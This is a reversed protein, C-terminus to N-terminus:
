AMQWCQKSHWYFSLLRPLWQQRAVLRYDSTNVTADCLLEVGMGVCQWWIKALQSRPALNVPAIQLEPYICRGQGCQDRRNRGFYKYVEPCVKREGDQITQSTVADAM